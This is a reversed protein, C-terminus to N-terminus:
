MEMPPCGDMLWSLATMPTGNGINWPEALIEKRQEESVPEGDADEFVDSTLCTLWLERLMQEPGSQRLLAATVAPRRWAILGEIMEYKSEYEDSWPIDQEGALRAIAVDPVTSQEAAFALTDIYSSEDFAAQCFDRYVNALALLTVLAIAGDRTSGDDPVLSAKALTRWATAAWAVAPDRDGWVRFAEGAVPLLTDWFPAEPLKRNRDMSGMAAMLFM